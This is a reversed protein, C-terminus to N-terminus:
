RDLGAQAECGVVKMGKSSATLVGYQLAQRAGGIAPIRNEDSGRVSHSPSKVPYRLRAKGGLIHELELTLQDLGARPSIKGSVIESLHREMAEAMEPAEPITPKEKGIPVGAVFTSAYSIQKVRSDDYTSIRASASGHLTQEIQVQPSM